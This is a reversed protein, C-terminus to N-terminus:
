SYCTVAETSSIYYNQVPRLATHSNHLGKRTPRGKGLLRSLWVCTVQAIRKIAENWFDLASKAKGKNIGFM